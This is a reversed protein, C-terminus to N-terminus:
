PKVARTAIFWPFFRELVPSVDETWRDELMATLHLGAACQGGILDELTHSFELAEGEAVLAELREPPLSELDSYPLPHAVVLEGREWLAQQDFVYTVPNNFGALLVGGSRLVRACESWVPRVAQAYCNSVPHFILDFSDDALAHLDAMDGQLTTISLHERQAVERDRALQAPSADVTTVRAGAAALVPGQQGGGSALCLVDAGELPPYWHAPVFRSPTLLLHVAGRRAAAIVEPSVPVTWPNGQAVRRDWADANIRLVDM